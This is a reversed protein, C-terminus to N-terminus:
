FWGEGGGSSNGDAHASIKNFGGAPLQIQPQSEPRATCGELQMNVVIDCLMQIGRSPVLCSRLVLEDLPVRQEVRWMLMDCLRNTDRMTFPVSSFILTTLSPLPPGDPPTAKSLADVFPGMAEHHIHVRELLPWQPTHRAWFQSSLRTYKTITLSILFTLPLATLVEKYIADGTGFLPRSTMYIASFMARPSLKPIASLPDGSEGKDTDPDAYVFVEPHGQNGHIFVSQLPSTDHFGYAHRAFHRTVSRVDLGAPNNSHARVRLQTIAPLIIHVLAFACDLVYGSLDLRTLTPLTVTLMGAHGEITIPPAQPTSFDFSLWEIQPVEELAKLWQYLSPKRTVQFLVLKRLRKFPTFLPLDWSINCNKLELHFLQPAKDDLRTSPIFPYRHQLDLAVGPDGVLVLRELAPVSSSLLLLALEELDRFRATINLYSIRSVHAQLRSRLARHQDQTWRVRSLNVTFHIPTNMARVLMQDVGAFNLVNFDIHSWLYPLNLAIERWQYCVHSVRLWALPDPTKRSPPPTYEGLLPLFSFITAIIEPPLRSIPSPLNPEKSLKMENVSDPRVQVIVFSIADM